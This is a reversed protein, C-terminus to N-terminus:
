RSSNLCALRWQRLREVLMQHTIRQGTPDTGLPKQFMFGRHPLHGYPEAQVATLWRQMKKNDFACVCYWGRIGKQWCARELRQWEDILHVWGDKTTLPPLGSVYAWVAGDGGLQLDVSFLPWGHEMWMESRSSTTAPM